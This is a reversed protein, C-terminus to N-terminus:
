RNRNKSKQISDQHADIDFNLDEIKRLFVENIQIKLNQFATYIDSANENAMEPTLNPREIDQELVKAKTILVNIRSNIPPTNFDKPISDLDTIVDIINDANSIFNQLSADKIKEIESNAYIFKHWDAVTKEADASLEVTPKNKLDIKKSFAAQNEEFYSTNKETKTDSNDCSYLFLLTCLGLLTKLFFRLYQM